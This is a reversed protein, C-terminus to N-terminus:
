ECDVCVMGRNLVQPGKSGDRFVTVGLCGMEYAFRYAREVDGLSATSPLNITKSVGNDTYEQFVAQMRIHWEPDIEHSIAFIRRMDEPVGVLSRVSGTRKIQEKLDESWFGETRAVIEFIPNIFSLIRDGVVHNFALAFIPEIGSSCGAIISITGTPAITTVTSNRLPHQDAYISQDWNPFKGREHALDVSASHGVIKIFKMIETGFELARKSAYPIRSMFLLDAWGMVGLGIRRNKYVAEKIEELPYPNVSIVNDLFHVATKIVQKLAEWDVGSTPHFFKTLNISGLNCAENPLLPQEGCPNTSEILSVGSMPNAPSNNIRDIFILGPDGMEWASKVIEDFIKQASEEGMVEGAKYPKWGERAILDYNTGDRLAEMFKETIAVSINFNTLDGGQKCRIFDRIDPHDVPLIGMNAGRRRGGQKISATAADFVRLFSVPGSAIGGSRVLRLGQPRLRGFSFGTGGGSQHIIAANKISEFIAPISDEIPLVYCASYQLGTHLGANMLTPSNPIFQRQVMMEYFKKSTEEVTEPTNPYNGEAIAYAVRRMMEEPTEDGQLYRERLITLAANTWQGKM